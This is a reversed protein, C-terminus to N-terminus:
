EKQTVVIVCGDVACSLEFWAEISKTRVVYTRRMSSQSLTRNSLLVDPTLIGFVEDPKIESDFVKVGGAATIVKDYHSHIVDFNPDYASKQKENYLWVKLIKGEVTYLRDSGVPFHHYFAEHLSVTEELTSMSDTVYRYGKPPTFFPFGGIDKDTVPLANVDFPTIPLVRRPDSDPETAAQPSAVAESVAPSGANNDKGCASVLVTLSLVALFRLKSKM